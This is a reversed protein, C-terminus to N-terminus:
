ILLNDFEPEEAGGGPESLAYGAEHVAAEIEATDLVSASTIEVAGTELTVDVDTVGPLASIAQQVASSCHGCTMGTVTVTQTTM